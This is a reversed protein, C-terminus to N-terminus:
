KWLRRIRGGESDLLYYAQPTAVISRFGMVGAQAGLGDQWGPTGEFLTVIEQYKLRLALIRTGIAVLLNEGELALGVDDRPDPLAPYPTDIVGLPSIHRIAGSDYVYVNGDQDAVMATAAKFRGTSIPGDAMGSRNPSGAYTSMPGTPFIIKRVTFGEPDFFYLVQQGDRDKGFTLTGPTFKATGLPGDLYGWSPTQALTSVMKLVPDVIRIRRFYGYESVYFKGDPGLAMFGPNVLLAVDFPGDPDQKPVPIPDDRYARKLLSTVTSADPSLTRLSCTTLEVWYLSGDDTRTLNNPLHIRSIHADGDLTQDQASGGVFDVTKTDSFTPQVDVKRVVSNQDAILWSNGLKTFGTLWEYRPDVGNMFGDAAQVAGALSVTSSQLGDLPVLRVRKDSSGLVFLVGNTRDIKLQTPGHIQADLGIGDVANGFPLKGATNGALTSSLKGGIVPIKRIRDAGYEAVYLTGDFDVVVGRPDNLQLTLPTGDALGQTTGAVTEVRKTAAVYKRIRHNSADAIYVDNSQPDVFLGWIDGFTTETLAAGDTAGEQGTGALTTVRGAEIKRIRHNGADAVYVAGASWQADRPRCFQATAVPDDLQGCVGSGAFTSVEGKSTLVRIVHNYVDPVYVNGGNDTSMYAPSAFRAESGTADHYGPPGSGALTVLCGRVDDITGDCDNDLGDCTTEDAQYSTPYVCASWGSAGRCTRGQDAGRCVGQTKECPPPSIHDDPVGSCDNDIGDCIEQSPVCSDSSETGGDNTACGASPCTGETLDGLGALLGCGSIGAACFLVLCAVRKM